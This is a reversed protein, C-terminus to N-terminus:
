QEALDSLPIVVGKDNLIFGQKLTGRAVSCLASSIKSSDLNIVLDYKECTIRLFADEEYIIIEDVYDNRLIERSEERTCWTLHADKYKNKLPKLISTTRLVDGMADLKIILIKFNIPSYDQCHDCKIGMNKHYSCPRDGFFFRCDLKLM